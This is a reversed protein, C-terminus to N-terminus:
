LEKASVKGATIEGLLLCIMFLLTNLSIGATLTKINRIKEFDVQIIDHSGLATLTMVVATVTLLLVMI